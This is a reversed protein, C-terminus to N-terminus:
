SGSITVGDEGFAISVVVFESPEAPALGIETIVRGRDREGPPNTETDCKVYYAEQARRGKLAGQQFLGDLYGSLERVIRAWLRVDNQEFVMGILNRTVWRHVSIFVRRVNVYKLLPDRSLTRAGWIRIGRGSFARICNIGEKNLPAHQIDNLNVELDVIDDLRENAPAKHFGVQRDNRAYVGSIHGCPPIFGSVMTPCKDVNLWPPSTPGELVRIWPHYFAGNTGKLKRRQGIVDVAEVCVPLADLIALRDGLRDCHKLVANQARIVEEPDPRLGFLSDASLPRPRMIDPACVLDVNALQETEELGKAVANELDLTKDLSVVYCRSGGNEFFGRVAYALYSNVLPLGFYQEFQPWLTLMGTRGTNVPKRPEAGTRRTFGLFAPVGTQMEATTEFLIEERYVGPPRVTEM